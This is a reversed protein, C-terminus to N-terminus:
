RLVGLQYGFAILEAINRTKTREMLRQKYTRVTNETLNMQKAIEKSTRGEKLLQLLQKEQYSLDVKRLDGNRTDKRKQIISKITPPFYKEGNRVSSIANMLEEESVGKSLFSNVGEDYFHLILSENDFQTLIIIPLSKHHTRIIRCADVGNMTPMSVDLFVLEFSQNNLIEIAEQGNQAECCEVSFSSLVKLLRIFAKRFLHQDDVILIKM